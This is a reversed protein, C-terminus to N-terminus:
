GKLKTQNASTYKLIDDSRLTTTVDMYPTISAKVKTYALKGKETLALTKQDYSVLKLQELDELNKYVARDKKSAFKANHVLDIFDTKSMVMTVPADSFRKALEEHCQGLAYLMFGQVATLRM